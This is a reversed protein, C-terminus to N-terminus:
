LWQHEEEYSIKISSITGEFKMGSTNIQNAIEVLSGRDDFIRGTEMNVLAYKDDDAAAVLYTNGRRTFVMGRELEIEKEVEVMKRTKVIAREM